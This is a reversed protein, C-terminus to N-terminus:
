FQFTRDFDTSYNIMRFGDHWLEVWNYAAPTFDLEIMNTPSELMFFQVRHNRPVPVNVYKVEIDFVGAFPQVFGRFSQSVQM